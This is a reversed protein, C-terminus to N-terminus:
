INPMKVSQGMLYTSVTERFILSTSWGLQGHERYSIKEMERLVKPINFSSQLQSFVFM